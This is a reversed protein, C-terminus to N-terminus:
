WEAITGAHILTHVAAWWLRRLAAKVAVTAAIAVATLVAWKQITKKLLHPQYSKMHVVTLLQELVSERLICQGFNFVWSVTLVSTHMQHNPINFM